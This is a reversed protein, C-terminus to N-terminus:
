KGEESAGQGIKSGITALTSQQCVVVPVWFFTKCEDYFYIYVFFNNNYSSSGNNLLNSVRMTGM